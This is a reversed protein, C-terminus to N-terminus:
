KDNPIQKQSKKRIANIFRYQYAVGFADFDGGQKFRIGSVATFRLAHNPNIPLSYTLGLRIGSIVSNLALDNRYTKGGYGYGADFALWMGKNFLRTLHGKIVWLPSQSLKSDGLFKKNNTFLWAGAYGEAIWKRFSYSVGYAMRFAWRNSGLNPLQESKYHGTPIIVQVSFGSVTKQTYGSFAEAKLAPAGTLNISARIRLDGLGTSHDEFDEGEYKGQWDGGGFPLIVDVKGSKGFFNVSRVYGAVLMHISGNFDELPLAPDLLTNGFAYAYGTVIFNMRVPLNTLARPELEQSFSNHPWGLMFLSVGILLKVSLRSKISNMFM